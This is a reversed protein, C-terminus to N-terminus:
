PARKFTEGHLADLKHDKHQHRSYQHRGIVTQDTHKGKENDDCLEYGFPSQRLGYDALEVVSLIITGSREKDIYGDADIM